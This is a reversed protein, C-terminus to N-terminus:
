ELLVYVDMKGSSTDAADMFFGGRATRAANTVGNGAVAAGSPELGTVQGADASTVFAGGAAVGNTGAVTCNARTMGHVVIWGWNRRGWDDRWSTGTTNDSTSIATALIGAIAGDNSTTTLRVTVGDDSNTDYVVVDGSSIFTNDQDNDGFRVYQLVVTNADGAKGGQQAYKSKNYWDAFQPEGANAVGVGIALLLGILVLYKANKM